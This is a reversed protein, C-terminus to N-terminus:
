GTQDSSRRVPARRLSAPVLLSLLLWWPAIAGGGGKGGSGGPPAVTVVVTRSTSGGPGTCALTYTSDSTLPGVTQNGAVPRNGAWQGTAVCSTANASSWTLRSSTGSPVRAPDAVLSLDPPPPTSAVQLGYLGFRATSNVRTIVNVFHDGPTANFSFAGGGFVFGIRETGRTVAASIEAFPAPFRLDTVAVDYSGASPIRVIRREFGAGVAQTTEWVVSGGAVTALRLGYLGSGLTTAPRAAVLLSLTGPAPTFELTGAGARRGLERGSQFAAFQLEALVGPFDFDTLTARHASGAVTVEAVQLSADSSTAPPTATHLRSFVTTGDRRLDVTMAGLQTPAAATPLAYVLVEGAGTNVAVEGEGDLTAIVAAGRTMAAAVRGLAVPFRLDSVRLTYTGAAPLTVPDGAALRGVPYTQEFVNVSSAVEAVRVGLAGAATATGAQAVLLLDYRGPTADFEARTGAASLRAVEVGGRSLLVAVVALPAPIRLDEVSLAHRGSGAIELQTQITSQGVPPSPQLTTVGDSYQAVAAGTATATLSAAFSGSGRPSAGIGAVQFAHQGAAADFQLTGPANLVAVRRSGATVAVQLSSLPDPFGVDRLVLEYRGAADLRFLSSAPKSDSGVLTADDVLVIAQAPLWPSLALL